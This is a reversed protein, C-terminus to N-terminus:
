KRTQTETNVGNDTKDVFINNEEADKINEAGENPSHDKQQSGLFMSSAQRFWGYLRKVGFLLVVLLIILLVPVLGIDGLGM